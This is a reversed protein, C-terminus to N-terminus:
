QYPTSSTTEPIWSLKELFGDLFSLDVMFTHTGIYELYYLQRGVEYFLYKCSDLTKQDRHLWRLEAYRIEESYFEYDFDLSKIHDGVKEWWKDFVKEEVVFNQITPLYEESHHNLYNQVKVYKKHSNCFM